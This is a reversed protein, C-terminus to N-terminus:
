AQGSVPGGRASLGMCSALSDLMADSMELRRSLFQGISPRRVGSFRSLESQSVGTELM